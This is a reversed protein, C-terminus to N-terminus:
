VCDCVCVCVCKLGSSVGELGDISARVVALGQTVSTMAEGQNRAASEVVTLRKSADLLRESARSVAASLSAQERRLELCSAETERSRATAVAAARRQENSVRDLDAVTTEVRSLRVRLADVETAAASPDATPIAAEAASAASAVANRADAM